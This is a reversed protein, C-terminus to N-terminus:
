AKEEKIPGYNRRLDINLRGMGPEIRPVLVRSTYLKM